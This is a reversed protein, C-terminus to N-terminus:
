RAARAQQKALQKNLQRLQDAERLADARETDMAVSTRANRSEQSRKHADANRRSIADRQERWAADGRKVPTEPTEPTEESMKPRGAQKEM